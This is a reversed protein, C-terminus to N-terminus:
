FKYSFSKGVRTGQLNPLEPHDARFGHSFLTHEAKAKPNNILNKNVFENIKNLTVNVDKSVYDKYCDEIKKPDTEIKIFTFGSGAIWCSYEPSDPYNLPVDIDFKRWIEKPFFSAFGWEYSLLRINDQRIRYGRFKGGESKCWKIVEKIDGVPELINKEEFQNKEPKKQDVLPQM